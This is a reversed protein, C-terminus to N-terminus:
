PKSFSDKFQMQQHQSLDLGVFIRSMESKVTSLVILHFESKHDSHNWFIQEKSVNCRLEAIAKERSKTQCKSFRFFFFFPYNRILIWYRSISCKDQAFYCALEQFFTVTKEKIVGNKEWELPSSVFTKHADRM